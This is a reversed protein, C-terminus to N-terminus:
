RPGLFPRPPNPLTSTEAKAMTAVAETAIDVALAAGDVALAAVPGSFTAALLRGVIDVFGAAGNEGRMQAVADDAFPHGAGRLGAGIIRVCDRAAIRGGGFRSALALMDDSGFASELEALAGLTLCLTFVTGNLTADIEGRYKNAM